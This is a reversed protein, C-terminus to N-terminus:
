LTPIGPAPTYKGDNLSVLQHEKFTTLAKDFGPKSIHAESKVVWDAYALGEPQGNFYSKQLENLVKKRTPSLNSWSLDVASLKQSDGKGIVLSDGCPVMLIKAEWGDEWDKQKTCKFTVVMKSSKDRTLMFQTDLAAKVASAGRAWSAYNGTHHVLMITARLDRKFADLQKVVLGMETNSNEDVGETCRAQTDLVILDVDDGCFEKVKHLFVKCDLADNLPLSEPLFRFWDEIEEIKMDNDALWANIRKKYGAVGEGAVYVVKARNVTHKNLWDIGSAVSLAMDLSIFSKYSGSEGYFQAVVKTPLVKDIIWTPDPMALVEKPSMLQFRHTSVIEKNMPRSILHFLFPCGLYM